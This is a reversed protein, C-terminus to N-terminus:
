WRRYVRCRSLRCSPPSAPPWVSPRCSSREQLGKWSWTPGSGDGALEVSSSLIEADTALLAATVPRGDGWVYIQRNSAVSGAYIGGNAPSYAVGHPYHTAPYGVGTPDMSSIGFEPFLYPAGSATVMRQGDASVALDRLNSGVGHPVDDLVTITPGTTDVLYVSFPSSGPEGVLLRDSSGPITRLFASYFSGGRLVVTGTGPDLTALQAYSSIGSSPTSFWILGNHVVLSGHVPTGATFTQTLTSTAINIRAIAGATTEPVWLDGGSVFPAGAGYVKAVTKHLTGDPNFVKVQDDGAVFVRGTVPDVVSGRFTTMGFSTTTTAASAPDIGIGGVAVVLSAAVMSIVAVAVRWRGGASRAESREVTGGYEM